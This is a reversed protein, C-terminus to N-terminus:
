SVTMCPRKTGIAPGPHASNHDFGPPALFSGGCKLIKHSIVVLACAYALRANSWGEPVEGLWEMGSNKYSEYRPFSM